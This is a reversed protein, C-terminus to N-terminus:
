VIAYQDFVNKRTMYLRKNGDSADMVFCATASSDAFNSSIASEKTLAHLILYRPITKTLPCVYMRLSVYM